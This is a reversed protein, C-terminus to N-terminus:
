YHQRNRLLQHPYLCLTLLRMNNAVKDSLKEAIQGCHGDTEGVIELTIGLM